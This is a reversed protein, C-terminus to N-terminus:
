FIARVRNKIRSEETLIDFDCSKDFLKSGIKTSFIGSEILPSGISTQDESLRRITTLGSVKSEASLNPMKMITTGQSVCCLNDDIELDAMM